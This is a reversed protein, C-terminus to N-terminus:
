KDALELHQQLCGCQCVYGFLSLVTLHNLNKIKLSCNARTKYGCYRTEGVRLTWSPGEGDRSEAAITGVSSIVIELVYVHRCVLCKLPAVSPPVRIM